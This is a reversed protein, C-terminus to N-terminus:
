SIRRRRSAVLGALGLGLLGLTAPEPVLRVSISEVYGNWTTPIERPCTKRKAEQIIRNERSTLHDLAGSFELRLLKAM